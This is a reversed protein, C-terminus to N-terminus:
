AAVRELEFRLDIVQLWRPKKPDPRKLIAVPRRLDGVMGLAAATSYPVRETSSRRRWRSRAIRQATESGDFALWERVTGIPAATVYDVRLSPPRDSKEHRTYRVGRVPLWTATDDADDSLVRGAIPALSLRTERPQAVTGGAKLYASAGDIRERQYPRLPLEHLRANSLPEAM